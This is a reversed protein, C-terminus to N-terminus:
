GYVFRWNKLNGKTPSMGTKLYRSSLHGHNIKLEQAAEIVSEFFLRTGDPKVAVIPKSSPSAGGLKGFLPHKKGIRSQSIKKKTEESHTKGIQAERNKRIHEKSQTKGIKAKRMKERTEKSPTWGSTGEGGDTRNRLMGTGLDKRGLIAIMYIEHKFAGGETLNKKLFIIRSKDNPTTIVKNKTYIRNDRGKGIYYPSGDKRLYAYTYYDSRQTTM